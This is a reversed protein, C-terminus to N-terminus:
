NYQYACILTQWWIWILKFTALNPKHADTEIDIEDTSCRLIAKLFFILFLMDLFLFVLSIEISIFLKFVAIKSFAFRELNGGINSIIKLSKSLVLRAFQLFTQLVHCSKMSLLFNKQVRLISIYSLPLEFSNKSWHFWTM